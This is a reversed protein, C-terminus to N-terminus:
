LLSNSENDISKIYKKQTYIAGNKIWFLGPNCEIGFKEKLDYKSINKYPVGWPNNKGGNINITKAKNYEHYFFIPSEYKGIDISKGISKIACLIFVTINYNNSKVGTLNAYKGGILNRQKLKNITDQIKRSEWLHSVNNGDIPYCSYYIM